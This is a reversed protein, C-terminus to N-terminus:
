GAGARRFGTHYRELVRRGEADLGLADVGRTLADVRGYLAADTNIKNWHRAMRPSMEREIELLTDNSHAGALLHFADGIRALLRGARELAVITNDFSPAAPSATIAAVEATHEALARDYAERFHEPEIHAFPPVEDPTAWKALLPNASPAPSTM